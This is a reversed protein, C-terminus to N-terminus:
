MHGGGYGGNEYQCYSIFKVIRGNLNEFSTEQLMDLAHLPWYICWPQGVDLGMISGGVITVYFM